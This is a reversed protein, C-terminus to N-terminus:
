RHSQTVALAGRQTTEHTEAARSCMTRLLASCAQVMNDIRSHAVHVWLAMVLAFSSCINTVHTTPAVHLYFHTEPVEAQRWMRKLDARYEKWFRSLGLRTLSVHVFRLDHWVHGIPDPFVQSGLLVNPDEDVTKRQLEARDVNVKPLLRQTPVLSPMMAM